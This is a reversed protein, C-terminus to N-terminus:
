ESDDVVPPTMGLFAGARLGWMLNGRKPLNDWQARQASDLYPAILHEPIDPLFGPNNMSALIVTMTWADDWNEALDAYLKTRQAETLGLEEDIAVVLNRACVRRLNAIRKVVEGEYRKVQAPSLHSRVLEILKEQVM